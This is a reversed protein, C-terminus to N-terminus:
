RVVRVRYFRRGGESPGALSGDDMFRLTGPVGPAGPDMEAAVDRPLDVFSGADLSGSILVRYRTGGVSDWALRFGGAAAEAEALRLKSSADRPNTGAWYEDLNSMGDSDPDGAPDGADHLAEWPDALGDADLDPAPQLVMEVTGTGSFLQGDSALFRIADGAASGRAPTYRLRGSEPDFGSVLGNTPYAAISYRLPHRNADSAALRLDPVADAEAVCTANSAVPAFNTKSIAFWDNTEGTERLYLGTLRSRSVELVLSGLTNQSVAMAPHNLSGGSTKGSCGVVAYVAGRRGVPAGAASEPKVYGGGAADARGSGGDVVMSGGLTASSGYHGSLLFSREYSHSHGSLVFDVGGEELIPVLNQRMEVLEVETDSDHSGKTYPPHHFLAILWRNTNAALDDRLWAAMQGDPDRSSLMSDLCVFHVMGLDFSYYLNTHSAVGGAEGHGPVTFINCYPYEGNWDTSYTEHNGLTVWVPTQRLRDQYLDFMGAQYQADSGVDYANDGLQLWADVPRSGVFVEFANRVAAANANGTGADGTVWLLLPKTTGAPPHTRFSFGAGGGALVRASSGVSYFYRTDPALNTVAVVHETVAQGDFCSESLAEPTLGYRVQSDEELDSRWRIVVSTPSCAQLYPGRTLLAEPASDIVVAVRAGFVADSSSTGNQHVRVAVANFGTKLRALSRGVLVFSEVATADGGAPSGSASTAGTGRGAAMRGRHVEVGKLYFVAGDDVLHSVVLKVVDSTSALSFGGRFYYCALPGGGPAPPLPTRKAAPLAATEIYFLGNSPGPWLADDWEPAAWGAEDSVASTYRWSGGFDLVVNTVPSGFAADALAV